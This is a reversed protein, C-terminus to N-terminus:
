QKSLVAISAISVAFQSFIQSVDIITQRLDLPTVDRPVVISSGPPLATVEFNLWSRAARRAEGNPLVVYIHSEDAIASYGGAQEVYDDLTAGKRFTFNGPQLVEGLVAITTPRPPIYIVDGAELLPDRSPDAMLIKPDAVFSVRGLTQHNRVESVFSQMSAFTNPDIKSSGIRTMAVVLQNQIEDAERVYAQREAQAASQRLYVTGYPYATSTLGGARALLDSLHEGRLIPFTGPYRVEGQVTVSGVGVDSSVQSFRFQDRPHVVYSALMGKHLPLSKRGTMAQGTGRDVVTSILEVGSEDAWNLTGGAAQVLDNLTANPGALYNGPGHVAGDLRVRHDILFNALVLPDVGLQRALEGFTHVERNIAFGDAPVVQETFNSPTENDHRYRPQSVARRPGNPGYDSWTEASRDNGYLDDETENGNLADDGFGPLNRDVLGGGMNNYSPSNQYNGQAGQNVSQQNPSSNLTNQQNAIALRRNRQALRQGLQSDPAPTNLLATIDQRQIYAPVSSIDELETGQDSQSALQGFLSNNAGPTEQSLPNRIRDQDRALRTLYSRVVFNLLRAENSSLVRVLDNTQLPEDESGNLVAAPTFAVLQRSLTQPDKRVIIGFPTYPSTGLAGPAKLMDSLKTGRAVPYNGALGTGGSLTAQSAAQDAGLQVFLVESDHILDDDGSIPVLSTSGDQLIRLISMRYRGRVEQGGALHLLAHVTMTSSQPGLEYIGPQRVLGAVAVTSGLLPILIRDGDALRPVSGQGQATLVNYLDVHIVRSGRQIQVDRLSGTKKVGGSLLIADVVSNLGTLLRQGPNNVEGSVLVSIQRIRGVSVFSNTAVYARRVAAELDDRFVGFARGAAAIPSLRPLVVQGNRDVFVRFENNEQGRLSVIIEDGTGLVYDDTVAGAQPVTVPAARGLQDYGFQKLKIGSRVSLIQELRSPLLPVAPLQREPFLQVPQQPVDPRLGQTANQAGLQQRLQELQGSDINPLQQAYGVPEFGVVLAGAILFRICFGAM